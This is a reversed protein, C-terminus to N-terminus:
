RWLDGVTLRFGPIVDSGDLLDDESLTEPPQDPSHVVVHRRDPYIVWVLRTGAELYLQVKRATKGARDGPSYVEVALDPAVPWYGEIDGAPLRATQVFAVDPGLVTDPDRALIFGTEAAAVEGLNHARVYTTLHFALENVIKGHRRGALSMTWIEGEVLDHRLDDDPLAYFQEMTMPTKVTM